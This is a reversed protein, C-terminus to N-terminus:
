GALIELDTLEVDMEHYDFFNELDNCVHITAGSDVIFSESLKNSINQDQTSVVLGRSIRCFYESNFPPSVMVM